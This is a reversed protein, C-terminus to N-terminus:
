EIKHQTKRYQKWNRQYRRMYRRADALNWYPNHRPCDCFGNREDAWNREAQDKVILRYERSDDTWKLRNKKKRM